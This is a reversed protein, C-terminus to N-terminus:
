PRQIVNPCLKELSKNKNIKSSLFTSCTSSTIKLSLNVGFSKPGKVQSKFELKDIIKSLLLDTCKLRLGKNIRARWQLGTHYLPLMLANTMMM